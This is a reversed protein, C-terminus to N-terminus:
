HDRSCFRGEVVQATLWDAHNGCDNRPICGELERTMLKSRRENHTVADDQLRGLDRRSHDQLKDFNEFSRTEGGAHDIDDGAIAMRSALSKHAVGVDIEDGKRTPSFSALSDGLLRRVTVDLAK